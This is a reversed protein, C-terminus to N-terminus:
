GTALENILTKLRAPVDPTSKLHLISASLAKEYVGLAFARDYAHDDCKHCYVAVPAAADSFFAGCKNCLMENGSFLKTETWCGDCAVGDSSRAVPGSCVRCEQPFALSLLSDSIARLM